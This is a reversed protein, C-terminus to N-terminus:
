ARMKGEYTTWFDTIAAELAREELTVETTLREVAAKVETLTKFDLEKIQQRLTKVRQEISGLERELKLVVAQLDQYESVTQDKGPGPAPERCAVLVKREIDPPLKLGM